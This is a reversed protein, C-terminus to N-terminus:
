KGTEGTPIACPALNLLADRARTLFDAKIEGAELKLPSGFTVACLLPVPVIEGKPLVRNLNALWVPVLEVDPRKRALHYIGGKFALLPADTTNRTGEPFLILSAGDDIAETMPALPDCGRLPQQRDILVARFIKEAILRHLPTKLWYDAGAVPRTKRRLAPPLVTWVLVFDGHSAHNAYYIRQVPEPGCGLWHAQAATVLRTFLIIASTFLAALLQTM